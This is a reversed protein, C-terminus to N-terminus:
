KNNMHTNFYMNRYRTPSMNEHYKFFKVFLNEDGFGLELAISRIGSDTSLLLEKACKMRERNIYEKLTMHSYKKFLRSIYTKNYGFVRAVDQVKMDQRINMRVWEVIKSYASTASTEGAKGLTGLQALINGCVLSPAFEAMNETNAIHLLERFLNLIIYDGDTHIVKDVGFFSIDDTLFHLWYFETHGDSMRGGMHEVGPVLLLTDGKGAHYEHGDEEIYVDGATVYILEYSDINRRPHIWKQETSFLGSSVYSLEVKENIRIM